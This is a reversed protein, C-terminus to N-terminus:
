GVGTVWRAKGDAGIGGMEWCVVPFPREGVAVTGLMANGVVLRGAVVVRAPCRRRGATKAVAPCGRWEGIAVQGQGHWGHWICSQRGQLNNVQRGWGKRGKSGTRLNLRGCSVLFHKAGGAELVWRGAAPESQTKISGTM